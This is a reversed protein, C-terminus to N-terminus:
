WKDFWETVLLMGGTRKTWCSSVPLRVISDDDKGCKITSCWVWAPRKFCCPFALILEHLFSCLRHGLLEHKRTKCDHSGCHKDSWIFALLRTTSLLSHIQCSNNNRGGTNIWRFSNRKVLLETQTGQLLVIWFLLETSITDFMQLSLWIMTRKEKEWFGGKLRM